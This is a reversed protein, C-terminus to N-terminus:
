DWDYDPHHDEIYDKEIFSNAIGELETYGKRNNEFLYNEIDKYLKYLEEGEVIELKASFLSNFEDTFIAKDKDKRYLKDFIESFRYCISSKIDSDTIYEWVDIEDPPLRNDSLYANFFSM